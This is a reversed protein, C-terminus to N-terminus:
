NALETADALRLTAPKRLSRTLVFMVGAGALAPLVLGRLGAQYTGTADKMLGMWYPGLFGSFMTITNMAALGAAAARGALFQMPVANAPGLLAVFSLYTAGLAIVVIWGSDILGAILFGAAMILCPVICHLSREGTRDSHASNLLMALAGLLGFGAILYGVNAVSWGTAAQLIAPASFSYAYNATLACLFFAGILWVKPSLLAQLIGADHSLHATQSDAQLKTALWAKEETTLWAAKAPGDPLVKLIVFSFFVAPLGEVLFLWQWGALGLKGNLGLLWGALAGMVVSSLPLAIYFRSVARARM